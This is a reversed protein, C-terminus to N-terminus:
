GIYIVIYIYVWVKLNCLFKLILLLIEIIVLKITEKQFFNFLIHSSRVIDMTLVKINKIFYTELYFASPKTEEAWELFSFPINELINFINVM